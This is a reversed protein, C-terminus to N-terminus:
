DIFHLFDVTCGSNNGYIRIKKGSLKASLLTALLAQVNAIKSPQDSGKANWTLSTGQACSGAAANVTFVINTPVYTPEILSVTAEVTWDYAYASTVATSACLAGLLVFLRSVRYKM